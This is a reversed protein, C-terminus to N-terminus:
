GAILKDYGRKILFGAEEDKDAYVAFIERGILETLHYAVGQALIAAAVAPGIVVDIDVDKFRMAMERCLRSTEKTHPYLADKTIYSDSHLGSTFVFHGSRFAGVTKLLEAVDNDNM